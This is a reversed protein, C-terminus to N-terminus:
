LVMPGRTQLKHAVVVCALMTLLSGFHAFLWSNDYETKQLNRSLLLLCNVTNEYCIWSEGVFVEENSSVSEAYWLSQCSLTVLLCPFM